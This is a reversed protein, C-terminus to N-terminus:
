KKLAITVKKKYIGLNPARGPVPLGAKALKIFYKQVRSQVQVTYLCLLTTVGKGTQYHVETYPLTGTCYIFVILTTM